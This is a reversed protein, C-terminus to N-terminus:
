VILCDQFSSVMRFNFTAAEPINRDITLHQLYCSIEVESYSALMTSTCTSASRRIICMLM